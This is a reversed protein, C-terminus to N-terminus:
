RNTTRKIEENIQTLSIAECTENGSQIKQIIDEQKTESQSDLSMKQYQSYSNGALLM